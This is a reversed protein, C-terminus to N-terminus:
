LYFALKVTFLYFTSILLAYGDILFLILLRFFFTFISSCSVIKIYFVNIFVVDAVVLKIIM